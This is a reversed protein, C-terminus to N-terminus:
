ASRLSLFIDTLTKQSMVTNTLFISTHTTLSFTDINIMWTHTNNDVNTQNDKTLLSSTAIDITGNYHIRKNVRQIRVVCVQTSFVTRAEIFQKKKLKLWLTAIIHSYCWSIYIAMMVTLLGVVGGSKRQMDGNTRCCVLGLIGIKPGFLLM